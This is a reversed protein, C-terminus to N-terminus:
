KVFGEKAYEQILKWMQDIQEQTAYRTDLPNLAPHIINPDAQPFFMIRGDYLFILEPNISRVYEYFGTLWKNIRDNSM